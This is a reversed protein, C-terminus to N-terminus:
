GSVLARFAEPLRVPLWVLRGVGVSDWPGLWWQWIVSRPLNGGHGMRRHIVIVIALLFLTAIISALTSITKWPSHLGLVLVIVWLTIHAFTATWGLLYAAGDMRGSLIPGKYSPPFRIFNWLRRLKPQAQPDVAARTPQNM